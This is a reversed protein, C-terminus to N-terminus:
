TKEERNEKGARNKKAPRRRNKKMELYNQYEFGLCCMLRGCLGSIKVPNLALGQEKAMKVTVPEFGSLFSACCLERGCVGVGGIMGASDRIGIQRMEIRIHLQHALKKVLERFDVRNEATFYFIAKSGDHLYEVRVLKMKLGQEAILRECVAFAEKEKQRNNELRQFDDDRAKRLVKRVNKRDGKFNRPLESTPLIVVKGINIGRETEVVVMDGMELHLAGVAFFYTKRSGRISVGAYREM